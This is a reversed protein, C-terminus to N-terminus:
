DRCLDYKGIVQGIRGMAMGFEHISWAMGEVAKGASRVATGLEDEDEGGDPLPTRFEVRRAPIVVVPGRKKAKRTSLGPVEDEDDDSDIVIAAQV